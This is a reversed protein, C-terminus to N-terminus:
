DTLNLKWSEILFIFGIGILAFTNSINKLVFGELASFIIWVIGIIFTVNKYTKRKMKYAEGM